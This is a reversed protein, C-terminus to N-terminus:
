SPLSTNIDSLVSTTRMLLQFIYRQRVLGNNDAEYDNDYTTQRHSHSPVSSALHSFTSGQGVSHDGEGDGALASQQRNPLAM